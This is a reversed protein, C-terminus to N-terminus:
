VTYGSASALTTVGNLCTFSVIWYRYDSWTPETADPWKIDANWSPTYASATTDLVMMSTKGAALNTATFSTAATMTMHTMPNNMDFTQSTAAASTSTVEPHLNTYSGSVNGSVSLDGTVAAGNNTTSLKTSANHRLEIPTDSNTILRLSGSDYQLRGDYDDSMPSKMDIYAGSPGGMEINAYGSSSEISFTDDASLTGTVVVGGTFVGGSIPMKTAISNTVTTSFNADDGLAAALENLTDLTTPASDVLAAVSADIDAQTAYGSGAAQVAAIQTAGETQVLGIQTTGEDIVDQVAISPNLAEVSKSLLLFEQADTTGSTANLKTQLNSELTTLTVAM